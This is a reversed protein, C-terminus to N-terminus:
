NVPRAIRKGTHRQKRPADLDARLMADIAPKFPDLRFKRPPLKKRPQPVGVVVSGAGHPSARWAQAGLRSGVPGRDELGAPDSRVARGQESAHRREKVTLLM